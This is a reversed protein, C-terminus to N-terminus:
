DGKEYCTQQLQDRRDDPIGPRQATASGARLYEERRREAAHKRPQYDGQRRDAGARAPYTHRGSKDAGDHSRAYPEDSEDRAGDTGPETPLRLDRATIM